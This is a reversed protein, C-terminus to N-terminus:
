KCKRVFSAKAAGALPRGDKTVAKVECTEQAAASGIGIVVLAAVLWATAHAKDEKVFLGRWPQPECPPRSTGRPFFGRASRERHFFAGGYASNRRRLDTSPVIGSCVRLSM